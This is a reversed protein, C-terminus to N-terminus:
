FLDSFDPVDPQVPTVAPTAPAVAPTAPAIDAVPAVPEPEPEPASSLAVAPPLALLHQDAPPEPPAAVPPVPVGSGATALLGLVRRCTAAQEVRASRSSFLKAATYKGLAIAADHFPSPGGAADYFAAILGVADVAASVMTQRFRQPPTALEPADRAEIRQLLHLVNGAASKALASVGDAIRSNVASELKAAYGEPLIHELGSSDPLPEFLFDFGFRRVIESPLPYQSVDYIDGLDSKAASIIDPLASLLSAKATDLQAKVSGMRAVYDMMKANPIIRTGPLYPMTMAHHVKGAEDVARCAALYEARRSGLLPKYSRVMGAKAKVAEAAAAAARSDARSDGWKHMTLSVLSAMGRLVAGTLTPAKSNNGNEM